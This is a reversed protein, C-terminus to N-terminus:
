RRDEAPRFSTAALDKNEAPPASSICAARCRGYSLRQVNMRKPLGDLSASMIAFASTLDRLVKSRAQSANPHKGEQRPLDTRSAGDARNSGLLGRSAQAPFRWDFDRADLAVPHLEVSSSRRGSRPEQAASRRRLPRYQLPQGLCNGASGAQTISDGGPTLAPLMRVTEPSVDECRRLFSQAM